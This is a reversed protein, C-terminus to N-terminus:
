LEPTHQHGTPIFLNPCLPVFCEGSLIVMMRKKKLNNALVEQFSHKRHWTESKEISKLFYLALKVREIRHLYSVRKESDSAM